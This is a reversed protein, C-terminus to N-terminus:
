LNIIQRQKALQFGANKLVDRANSGSQYLPNTHNFHIFHIKQKENVSLDIFLQMSEIVFPHPIQSMDRGPLETGDFFTGDLFLHDNREIEAVIDKQWLDWKDIDPIFLVSKNPGLINQRKYM